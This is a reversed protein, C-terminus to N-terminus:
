KSGIFENFRWGKHQKRIGKVVGGLNGISLGHDRALQSLNLVEVLEGSPNTWLMWRCRSHEANQQPTVWELNSLRNNFPDRDIHNVQMGEGPEGLYTIAMLRHILPKFKRGNKTLCIRLYLHGRKHGVPEPTLARGHKNYVIGEESILYNEFGVINKM